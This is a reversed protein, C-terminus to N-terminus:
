NLPLKKFAQTILFDVFFFYGLVLLLDRVRAHIMSRLTSLIDDSVDIDRSLERKEDRLSNQTSFHEEVGEESEEGVEAEEGAAISSGGVYQTVEEHLLATQTFRLINYPM